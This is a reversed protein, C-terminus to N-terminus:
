GCGTTLVTRAVTQRKCCSLSPRWTILRFSVVRCGNNSCVYVYPSQTFQIDFVRSAKKGDNQGDRRKCINLLVERVNEATTKKKDLVVKEGLGLLIDEKYHCLVYKMNQLYKM